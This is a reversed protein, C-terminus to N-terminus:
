PYREYRPADMGEHVKESTLVYEVQAFTGCLM